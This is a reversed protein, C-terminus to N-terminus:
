VIRLYGFGCRWVLPLFWIQALYIFSFIWVYVVGGSKRSLSLAGAAPFAVSVRIANAKGV